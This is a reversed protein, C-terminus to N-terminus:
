NKNSHLIQKGSLQTMRSVVIDESYDSTVVCHYPGTNGEQVSPVLLMSQTAGAVPKAKNYWQYKVPHHKCSAECELTLEEGFTVLVVQPPQKTISIKSSNVIKVHAVISNIRCIKKGQETAVVECSYYGGGADNCETLTMRNGLHYTLMKQSGDKKLHKSWCYEINLGPAAEAKCLLELKKGTFVRTTSKPQETFWVIYIHLLYIYEIIIMSCHVYM